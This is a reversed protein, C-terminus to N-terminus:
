SKPAIGLRQAATRQSSMNVLTQGPIFTNVLKEGSVKRAGSPKMNQIIQSHAKFAGKVGEPSMNEIKVGVGALVTSYLKAGRLGKVSNKLEEKKKEDDMSNEIIEDAEDAEAVMETAAQEVAEDSLLQELKEKYVSLQGKLEEVESQLQQLEGKKGELETATQEYTKSSKEEAGTIAGATEEKDGEVAKAGEEDTNIFRGNRLRVKVLEMKIGGLQTNTAQTKENIIKVDSGGRGMGAPIVAVHNFIIGRQVADYQQGEFEGPSFDTAAHYGGSIEPLKGSKIDEMTAPDTVLLDSVLFEGDVVPAGAAQGKSVTGANEPTVWEHSGPVVQATELSHLTEPASMEEATVLMNFFKGKLHEPVNTLEDAHYRMLGTKLVRATCRLFGDPTEQWRHNQDLKSTFANTVKM